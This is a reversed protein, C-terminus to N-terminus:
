WRDDAYREASNKARAIRSRVYSATETKGADELTSVILKQLDDIEEVFATSAKARRYKADLEEGLLTKINELQDETIGQIDINPKWM